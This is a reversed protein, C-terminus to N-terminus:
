RVGQQHRHAVRPVVPLRRLWLWLGHGRILLSVRQTMLPRRLLLSVLHRPTAPSLRGTLAATFVVAGAQSLRVTTMVQSTDLGFRLDYRGAVTFFPSVYFAKDTSARGTADVDLLYAHREGYTNHVEAVVCRVREAEDLCWLVSIPDVIHGLVRANALMVIRGGTVDVGSLACFDEVNARISRTPDGLHDAARFSAFPRLWAPLQPPADVDILWQYVRYSFRHHLPSRREHVVTADVLAPLPPLRTGARVSVDTV